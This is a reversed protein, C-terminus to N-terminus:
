GGKLKLDEIMKNIEGKNREIFMNLLQSSCRIKSAIFLTSYGQKKMKAILPLHVRNINFNEHLLKM